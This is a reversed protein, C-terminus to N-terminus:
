GCGDGLHWRSVQPIGLIKNYDINFSITPKLTIEHKLIDWLCHSILM